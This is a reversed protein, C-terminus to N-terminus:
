PGAARPGAGAAAPVSAPRLPGARPEPLPPGPRWRGSGTTRAPEPAPAPALAPGRGARGWLRRLMRAPRRLDDATVGPHVPLSLVERAARLTETLPRAPRRSATDYLPMRHVPVSYYAAAGIGAANLKRALADRRERAGAMPRLPRYLERLPPARPAAPPRLPRARLASNSRWPVLSGSQYYGRRRRRCAHVGRRISGRLGAKARAAMMCAAPLDDAVDAAPAGGDQMSRATSDAAM